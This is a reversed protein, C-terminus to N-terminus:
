ELRQKPKESSASMLFNPDSISIKFLKWFMLGLLNEASDEPEFGMGKSVVVTVDSM